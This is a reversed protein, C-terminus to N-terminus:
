MSLGRNVVEKRCFQRKTLREWLFGEMGVGVRGGTPECLPQAAGLGRRRREEGRWRGEIGM